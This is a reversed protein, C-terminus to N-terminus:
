NIMDWPKFVVKGKRYKNIIYSFSAFDSVQYSISLNDQSYSSYGENGQRNFRIVAVQLIVNMFVEFEDFVNNDILFFLDQYTMKLILSLLEDQKDDDKSIGLLVKFDDLLKSLKEDSLEKM